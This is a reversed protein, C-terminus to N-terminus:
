KQYILNISGSVVKGEVKRCIAIKNSGTYRYVVCSEARDFTERISTRATDTDLTVGQVTAVEFLPFGRAVRSAVSSKTATM